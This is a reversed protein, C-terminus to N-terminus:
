DGAVVVLKNDHSDIIAQRATRALIICGNSATHNMKRNDGHIFFGCRGPMENSPAPFLPLALPGLHGIPRHPLGITYDGRPVPGVGIRDQEDPNNLGTTNGSYGTAVHAGSHSLAGTGQTYSWTM